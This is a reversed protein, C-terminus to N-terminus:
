YEIKFQHKLGRFAELDARLSGIALDAKIRLPIRNKDASV